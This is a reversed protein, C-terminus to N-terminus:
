PVEAVDLRSPPNEILNTPCGNRTLRELSDCRSYKENFSEYRCWACSRHFQICAGCTYNDRSLSYCPFAGDDAVHLM